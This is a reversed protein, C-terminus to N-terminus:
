FDKLLFEIKKNKRIFDYVKDTDTFEKLSVMKDFDLGDGQVTVEKKPALSPQSKSVKMSQNKGIKMEFRRRVIESKVHSLIEDFAEEVPNMRRIQMQKKTPSRNDMKLEEIQKEMLRIRKEYRKKAREFDSEEEKEKLKVQIISPEDIMGLNERKDHAKIDPPNIGSISLQSINQSTDINEM